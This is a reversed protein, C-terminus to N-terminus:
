EKEAETFKKASFVVVEQYRNEDFHHCDVQSLFKSLKEKSASMVVIEDGNIREIITSFVKYCPSDEDIRGKLAEITTVTGAM